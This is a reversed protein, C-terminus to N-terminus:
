GRTVIRHVMLNGRPQVLIKVVELGGPNGSTTVRQQLLLGLPRSVILALTALTIAMPLREIKDRAREGAGMMSIGAMSGALIGSTAFNTGCNPHVALSSEGNRLRDLAENVAATVEETSLEGLIWFGRHDSHGGMAKGSQRKALLNLTAHELGHNRRIRSILPMELVSGFRNTINATM